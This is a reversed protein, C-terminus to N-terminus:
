YQAKIKLYRQYDKLTDIDWCTPLEKFAINNEHLRDRSQQMVKESGWDIGQFLFSYRQKMGLLVYGGDEAPVFVVETGSRLQQIANNILEADLMPADTGIVICHKYCQLAQVVGNLMREGLDDGSQAYLSLPYQQNCQVFYDAQKDPSCLLRVDWSNQQTLMTLRHHILDDQLQTAARVGIDPILRTNVEGDVPAKAYLLVVADVGSM